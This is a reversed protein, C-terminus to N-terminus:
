QLSCAKVPSCNLGTTRMVRLFTGPQFFLNVWCVRWHFFPHSDRLSVPDGNEGDAKMAGNKEAKLESLEALSDSGLNAKSCLLQLVGSVRRTGKDVM